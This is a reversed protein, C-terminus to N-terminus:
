ALQVTLPRFSSRKSRAAAAPWSGTPLAAVGAPVLVAAAAPEADSCRLLNKRLRTTGARDQLEHARAASRCRVSSGLAHCGIPRWADPFRGSSGVPLAAYEQVQPANCYIAAIPPPPISQHPSPERRSRAAVAEDLRAPQRIAGASCCDGRIRFRGERLRDPSLTAQRVLLLRADASRTSRQPLCRSRGTAEGKRTPTSALADPRM